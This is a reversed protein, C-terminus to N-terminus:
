HISTTIIDFLMIRISYDMLCIAGVIALAVIGIVVAFSITHKLFRCFNCLIIGAMTGEPQKKNAHIDKTAKIYQESPRMMDNIQQGVSTKYNRAM